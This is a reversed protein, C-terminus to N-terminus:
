VQTMTYYHTLSSDVSERFRAPGADLGIVDNLGACNVLGDLSGYQKCITTVADACASDDALELQIMECGQPGEPSRDLGVVRAMEQLLVTAIARGIGSGAGTVIIVKDKLELDM